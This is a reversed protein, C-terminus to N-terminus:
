TSAFPVKFIEPNNGKTDCALAYGEARIDLLSCNKVELGQIKIREKAIEESPVIESSKLKPNEDDGNKCCQCGM